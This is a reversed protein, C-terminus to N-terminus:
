AEEIWDGPPFPDWLKGDAARYAIRAFGANVGRERVAIAEERTGVVIVQRQKARAPLADVSSIEVVPPDDIVELDGLGNWGPDLQWRVLPVAWQEHRSCADAFAVPDTVDALWVNAVLRGGEFRQVGPPVPADIIALSNAALPETHEACDRDFVDVIANLARSAIRM